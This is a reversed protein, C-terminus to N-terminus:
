CTRLITDFTSPQEQQVAGGALTLSIVDGILSVPCFSSSFIFLLLLCMLVDLDKPTIDEIFVRCEARKLHLTKFSIVENRDSEVAPYHAPVASDDPSVFVQELDRIIKNVQFM